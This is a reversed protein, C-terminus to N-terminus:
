FAAAPIPHTDLNGNIQEILEVTHGRVYDGQIDFEFADDAKAYSTEKGFLHKLGYWSQGSAYRMEYRGLPVDVEIKRGGVVYIGVITAGTNLDVLKVYYNAGSSTMISFPAMPNTKRKLVLIGPKVNVPQFTPEPPVIPAAQAVPSTATPVNTTSPAQALLANVEEISLPKRTDPVSPARATMASTTTSSTLVSAQPPPAQRKAEGQDVLALLLMGGVVM